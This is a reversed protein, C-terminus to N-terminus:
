KEIPYAKELILQISVGVNRLRKAVEDTALELSASRALAGDLEVALRTRDDQMVAFEEEINGRELDAQARRMAAAEIQDLAVALRKLAIELKLSTM